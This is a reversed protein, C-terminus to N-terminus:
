IVLNSSWRKGGEGVMMQTKWSLAGDHQSDDRHANSRAM